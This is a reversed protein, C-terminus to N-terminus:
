DRLYSDKIEWLKDFPIEKSLLVSTTGFEKSRLFITPEILLNITRNIRNIEDKSLKNKSILINLEATMMYEFQYDRLTINSFEIIKTYREISQKEPIIERITMARSNDEAAQKEYTKLHSAFFSDDSNRLLVIFKKKNISMRNLAIKAKATKDSVFTNSIDEFFRSFVKPKYDTNNLINRAYSENWFHNESYNTVLRKIIVSNLEKNTFQEPTYAFAISSLLFLIFFGIGFIRVKQMEIM